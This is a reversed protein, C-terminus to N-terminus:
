NGDLQVPSPFSLSQFPFLSILVLVNKLDLFIKHIRISTIHCFAKLVQM